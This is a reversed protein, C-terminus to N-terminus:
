KEIGRRIGMGREKEGEKGGGEKEEKNGWGRKIM